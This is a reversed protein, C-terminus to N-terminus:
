FVPKSATRGTPSPMRGNEVTSPGSGRDTFGIASTVARRAVDGHSSAAFTSPRRSSSAHSRSVHAHLRSRSSVDTLGSTDTPLRESHGCPLPCM